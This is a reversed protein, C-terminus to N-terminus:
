TGMSRDLSALLGYVAGFQSKKQICQYTKCKKKNQKNVYGNIWFPTEDSFVIKRYFLPDEAMKGLASEHLEHLESLLDDFVM